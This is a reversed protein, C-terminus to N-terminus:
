IIRLLLIGHRVPHAFPGLGLHQAREQQANGGDGGGPGGGAPNPPIGHVIGMIQTSM